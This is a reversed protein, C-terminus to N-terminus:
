SNRSGNFIFSYVQRIDVKELSENSPYLYIPMIVRRTKQPAITFTHIASPGLIGM